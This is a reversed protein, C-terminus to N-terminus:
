GLRLVARLLRRDNETVGGVAVLVVWYLVIMVASGALLAVWPYGSELRSVLFAAAGAVCAAALPRGVWARWRLPLDLLRGALVLTAIGTASVVALSGLV